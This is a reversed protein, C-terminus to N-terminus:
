GRSADLVEEQKDKVMVEAKQILEAAEQRLWGDVVAALDDSVGGDSDDRGANKKKMKIERSYNTVIQRSEVKM